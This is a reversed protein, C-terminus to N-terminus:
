QNRCIQRPRAGAQVAQALDRTYDQVKQAFTLMDALYFRWHRRDSDSM